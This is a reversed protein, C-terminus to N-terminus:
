LQIQLMQKALRVTQEVLAQDEAKQWSMGRRVKAGITQELAEKNLGNHLAKGGKM